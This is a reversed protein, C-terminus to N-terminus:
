NLYEVITNEYEDIVKAKICGYHNLREAFLIAEEVDAFDKVQEGIHNVFLVRFM